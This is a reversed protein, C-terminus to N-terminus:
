NASMEQMWNWELIELEGQTWNSRKNLHLISTTLSILGPSKSTNSYLSFVLDTLLEVPVQFLRLTFPALCMIACRQTPFRWLKMGPTNVFGRRLSYIWSCCFWIWVIETRLDVVRDFVELKLKFAGDCVHWPLFKHTLSALTTKRYINTRWHWHNWNSTEWKEM